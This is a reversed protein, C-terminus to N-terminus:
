GQASLARHAASQVLVVGSENTVTTQSFGTDAHTVTVTAGPVLARSADTVTGRLNANTRQAAAPAACILLASVFALSRFWM